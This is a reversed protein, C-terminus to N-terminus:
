ASRPRRSGARRPAATSASSGRSSRMGDAPQRMLEAGARQLSPTLLESFVKFILVRHVDGLGAQVAEPAVLAMRCVTDLLQSLERGEDVSLAEQLMLAGVRPTIRELEKFSQLTLDNSTRLEYAVQDIRVTPRQSDTTLDLVPSTAM